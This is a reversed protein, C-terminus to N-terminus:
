ARWPTTARCWVCCCVGHRAAIHVPRSTPRWWAVHANIVNSDPASRQLQVCIEDQDSIAVHRPQDDILVALRQGAPGSYRAPDVDLFYTSSSAEVQALAVGVLAACAAAAFYPTRMGIDLAMKSPLERLARASVKDTGASM